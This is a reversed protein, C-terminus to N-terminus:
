VYKHDRGLRSIKIDKKKQSKSKLSKRNFIVSFVVIQNKKENKERAKLQRDM